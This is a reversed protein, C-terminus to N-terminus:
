EETEGPLLYYALRNSFLRKDKWAKLAEIGLQLAEVQELAHISELYRMHQELRGIAEDKTM